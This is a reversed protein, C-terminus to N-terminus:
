VSFLRLGGTHPSTVAYGLVFNCVLALPSISSSLQLNDLSGIYREFAAAFKRWTCGSTRRISM